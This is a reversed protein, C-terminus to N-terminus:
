EGCECLCPQVDDRVALPRTRGWSTGDWLILGDDTVLEPVGDKDVDVAAILEFSGDTDEWALTVAGDAGIEWLGAAFGPQTCSTWGDATALVFRKGGPTPPELTVLDIRREFEEEDKLAGFASLTGLEPQLKALLAGKTVDLRWQPPRPLDAAHGWKAKLCGFVPAVVKGDSELVAAARAEDDDGEIQSVFTTREGRLVPPGPTAECRAGHMDYLALKTTALTRVAAALKGPGVNREAVFTDHAVDEEAAHCMWYREHDREYDPPNSVCAPDQEPVEGALLRPAGAGVDAPADDLLVRGGGVLVLLPSAIPIPGANPLLRSALLEERVIKLAGDRAAVEIVKPGFDRYNGSSWDQEFRITAGKAGLAIAVDVARVLMPKKFMRQRDALWGAQDLPVTKKGSRRVGRFEPAYLTGYAAFDGGNQAALWAALVAEVQKRPLVANPRAIPRSTPPAGVPTTPTGTVSAPKAGCAALALCLAAGARM